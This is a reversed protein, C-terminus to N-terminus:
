RAVQMKKPKIALSIGTLLLIFALLPYVYPNTPQSIGTGNDDNDENAPPMLFNKDIRKMGAKDAYEDLYYGYRSVDWGTSAQLQQMERIRRYYVDKYYGQIEPCDLGSTVPIHLIYRGQFKEKDPTEEFILDQPFHARDYRVHLRTFFVNGQYGSPNARLRGNPIPQQYTNEQLWNVGAEKLDNLIPPTSTCPDCKVYNSGSLDWAYELMVVNEGEKKWARNFLDVYYRAFEDKVFLPIDIDSPIKVTRYNIAEVRGLQSFAYVIMDQTGKSNAMGLRLPLMFKESNFSIQLPRLTQFDKKAQEEMNVKVVFFKMNSKIYPELVQEAAPPIKYGNDTLWIKLGDSQTASLILIDYEGVTYKAEIKVGLSQAQNEEAFDEVASPTSRANIGMREYERRQCPSQDYYQVLRPASYADLKDFVLRDAIRIDSKQLVVPVPVVMAFDKVDGKFDSSMTITTHQGNRVLIVQSTENFLSADAKAVYFGCFAHASQLQAIVAMTIFLVKKM